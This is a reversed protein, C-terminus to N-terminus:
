RPWRPRVRVPLPDAGSLRLDAGDAHSGAAPRACARNTGIPVGRDRAPSGRRRRAAGHDRDLLADGDREGVPRVGRPLPVSRRGARCPGLWPRLAGCARVGRAPRDMPDPPLGRGRRPRDRTFFRRRAPEARRAPAVGAAVRGLPDAGQLHLAGSRLRQDAVEHLRQDLLSVPHDVARALQRRRPPCRPRPARRDRLRAAGDLCDRLTGALRRTRECSAGRHDRSRRM